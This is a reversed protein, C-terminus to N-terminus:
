SFCLELVRREAGHAETVEDFMRAVLEESLNLNAYYNIQLVEEECVTDNHNTDVAHVFGKVLAPDVDPVPVAGQCRIRRKFVLFRSRVENSDTLYESM